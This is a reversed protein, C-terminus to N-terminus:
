KNSLFKVAEAEGTFVAWAEKIRQTISRYKYNIPRAIVWKGPSAEVRNCLLDDIIYLLM